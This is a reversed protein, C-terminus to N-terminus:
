PSKEVRQIEKKEWERSSKQRKTENLESEREFENWKFYRERSQEASWKRNKTNKRAIKKLFLKCQMPQISFATDDFLSLFFSDIKKKFHFFSFSITNYTHIATIKRNLLGRWYKIRKSSTQTKANRNDVKKRERERTIGSKEGKIEWIIYKLLFFFFVLIFSLFLRTLSLSVCVCM